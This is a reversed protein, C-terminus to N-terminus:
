EGDAPASAPPASRRARWTASGAADGQRESVTIMQAVARQVVDADAGLLPVLVDYADSLDVAAEADRALGLLASGRAELAIGIGINGAPLNKRSLSVSEDLTALADGFRRMRVYLRGLNTLSVLTNPHDPGLVRRTSELDERYLPEALDYRGSRVYAVALNNIINLTTLHQDGLVRRATELAALGLRCGEEHRAQENYLYLLNSKVVLTDPDDAGFQGEMQSLVQALLEMARDPEGRDSYLLALNNKMSITERHGPGLAAEMGNLARLLLPEAKPLENQSLYVQALAGEARLTELEDPGIAERLMAVSQELEGISDQFAGTSYRTHDLSARVALTRRDRDGRLAKWLEWARRFHKEAADHAGLRAYTAAITEEIEAAVQPQDRFRSGIRLAAEDLVERMTIARDATRTPDVAALLDHTLFENIARAISSQERAERASAAESAAAADARRKEALAWTMGWTTGTVGVLLAALAASGGLVGLRHRRVFKRLRYAASPPGASVPEHRLFREIDHAFGAASAYRRSRDKELAKMIVWDLDRQLLSELRKADISRQRAVASLREGLGRVRASPRSPEAERIMRKIEELGARRLTRMDFPTSGTMLEYLLVGLSYIDTRTDLDLGGADAQEPSMYAPTGLFQGLETFLTQETLRQQTAKAIGFDIVKPVAAGDRQAVLVNGPKIDRHIIGKQHAHQVADCVQCFLGLRQAASLKLADCHETIAIGEVLEMVFYPRGTATAGADLARAINPHDMLALAQREAEFRAIVQRTDMGLKIIKLAVHRRVPAEQEARYVVGFGGEGIRQLLRYRGIVDGPRETLVAGGGAPTAPRTEADSPDAADISFLTPSHAASSGAHSRAPPSAGGRSDRTLGDAALADEVARRDEPRPCRERLLRERQEPPM